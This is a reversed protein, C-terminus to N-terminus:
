RTISFSAGCGCRSVEQPNQFDFRKELLTDHWTVLSGTLILVSKKDVVFDIGSQSWTIDSDRPKEDEFSISYKYGSCSGGRVGFRIMADPTGRDNLKSQFVGLATEDVTIPAM